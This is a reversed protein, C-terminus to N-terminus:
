QAGGNANHRSVSVGEIEGQLSFQPPNSLADIIEYRLIARLSPDPIYPPLQQNDRYYQMISQQARESLLVLDANIMDSTLRGAFFHQALLTLAILAMILTLPGKLEPGKKKQTPPSRMAEADLDQKAKGILENLDSM